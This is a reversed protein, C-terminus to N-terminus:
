DSDIQEAYYFRIRERMRRIEAELFRKTETLGSPGAGYVIRITQTRMTQDHPEDRLTELMLLKNEAETITMPM